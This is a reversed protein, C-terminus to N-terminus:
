GRVITPSRSVLEAAKAWPTPRGFLYGQGRDAGVSRCCEAELEEEIGEMVVRIGMRHAMQAVGDVIALTKPESLLSSTLSKDIKLVQVPLRRLYGLASYGTGFDDIALGIGLANIAALTSVAPDGEAVLIAETIEVILQDPSIRHQDLQDRIQEVYGPIRLQIPSANVSLTLGAAFVGAKTAAALTESLLHEGLAVVLGTQEAVAIFEDPPVHGLEDDTWRALSEFGTLHGTSLDVIPQGFTIITRNTIALRLRHELHLRRERARAVQGDYVQVADRGSEKAARLAAASEVLGTLQDRHEAGPLPAAAGPRVVAASTTGTGMLRGAEVVDPRVLRGVGVSASIGVGPALLALAQAVATRLREGLESGRDLDGPCLVAFEDGGVRAIMAPPPCNALLADAVAILLADGAHHGLLDNVQKFGDLDLTLVVRPIGDRGLEDIRTTLARRNSLGTLSDRFAQARLGTILRLRLHTNMAERLYLLPVLLVTLLVSGRADAGSFPGGGLGAGLLCAFTVLTAVQTASGERRDLAEEGGVPSSRFWIIGLAILPWVLCWLTAALWPDQRSGGGQASVIVCLDAILHGLIGLAAPWVRSRLDRVATLLIAAFLTCDALVFLGTLLHAADFDVMSRTLVVRWLLITLAAGVALSDLLVRLGPMTPVSNRPLWGIALLGIPVSMFAILDGTSPYGVAGDFADFGSALQGAGWFLMAGAILLRFIEIKRYRRVTIWWGGIVLASIVAVLGTLLLGTSYALWPRGSLGYWAPVAAAAVAGSFGLYTLWRFPGGGDRHGASGARRYGKPRDGMTMYM